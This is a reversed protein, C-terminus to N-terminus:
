CHTVPSVSACALIGFFGVKQVLHQVGLKARSAFDQVSSFFAHSDAGVSGQAGDVLDTETSVLRRETNPFLITSGDLTIFCTLGRLLSSLFM